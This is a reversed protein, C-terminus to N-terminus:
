ANYKDLLEAKWESGLVSSEGFVYADIAQYMEEETDKSEISEKLVKRCQEVFASNIKLEFFDVSTQIYAAVDKALGFSEVLDILDYRVKMKEGFCELEEYAFVDNAVTNARNIARNKKRIEDDVM